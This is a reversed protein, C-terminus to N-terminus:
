GDRVVADIDEGGRRWRGVARFVWFQTLEHVDGEIVVDESLDLGDTSLAQADSKASGVSYTEWGTIGALSAPFTKTDDASM